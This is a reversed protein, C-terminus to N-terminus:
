LGAVIVHKAAIVVVDEVGFFLDLVRTKPYSVGDELRVELDPHLFQSLPFTVPSMVLLFDDRPMSAM